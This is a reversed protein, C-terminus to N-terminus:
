KAGGCYKGRFDAVWGKVKNLEDVKGARREAREELLQASAERGAEREKQARAKLWATSGKVDAGGNIREVLKTTRSELKPLRKDCLFAVQEPSLTVTVSGSPPSAPQAQAAGTLALTTAVLAAGTVALGTIRM